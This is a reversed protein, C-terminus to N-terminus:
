MVECKGGNGGPHRKEEVEVGGTEAKALSDCRCQRVAALAFWRDGTAFLQNTNPGTPIGLFLKPRERHARYGPHSLLMRCHQVYLDFDKDSSNVLFREIIGLYDLSNQGDGSSIMNSNMSNTPILLHDGHYPPDMTPSMTLNEPRLSHRSSMKISTSRHLNCDKVHYRDHLYGTDLIRYECCTRIDRKSM